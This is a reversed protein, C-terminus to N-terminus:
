FKTNKEEIPSDNQEAHYEITPIEDNNEPADNETATIAPNRSNDFITDVLKKYLYQFLDVKRRL